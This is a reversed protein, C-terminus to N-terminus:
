LIFTKIIIEKVVQDEDTKIEVQTKVPASAKTLDESIKPEAFYSRAQQTSRSDM